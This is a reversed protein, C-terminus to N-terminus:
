TSFNCWKQGPVQFEDSGYHPGAWNTTEYEPVTKTAYWHYTVAIRYQGPAEPYYWVFWRQRKEFHRWYNGLFPIETGEDFTRDFLWINRDVESWGSGDPTDMAPGEGVWQYLNM